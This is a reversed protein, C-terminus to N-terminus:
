HKSKMRRLRNKDARVTTEDETWGKEHEQCGEAPRRVSPLRGQGKLGRKAFGPRALIETRNSVLLPIVAAPGSLFYGQM